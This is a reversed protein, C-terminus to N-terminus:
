VKTLPKNLYTGFLTQQNRKLYNKLIYAQSKNWISNEIRCLLDLHFKSELETFMSKKIDVSKYIKTIM